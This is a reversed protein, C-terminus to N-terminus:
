RSQDGPGRPRGTSRVQQSANEEQPDRQGAGNGKVRLTTRREFGGTVLMAERLPADRRHQASDLGLGDADTNAHPAVGLLRRLSWVVRLRPHDVCRAPFDSSGLM